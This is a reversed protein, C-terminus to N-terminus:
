GVLMALTLSALGGPTLWGMGSASIVGGALLAALIFLVLALVLLIRSYNM